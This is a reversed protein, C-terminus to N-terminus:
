YDPGTWFVRLRGGTEGVEHQETQDSSQSIYSRYTNCEDRRPVGNSGLRLERDAESSPGLVIARCWRKHIVVDLQTKAYCNSTTDMPSGLM